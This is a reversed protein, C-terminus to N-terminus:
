EELAKRALKTSIWSLLLESGFLFAGAAGAAIQATHESAGYQELWGAVFINIAAAWKLTQRKAFGNPGLVWLGVREVVTLSKIKDKEKLLELHLNNM